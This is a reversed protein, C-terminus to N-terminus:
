NTIRFTQADVNRERTADSEAINGSIVNEGYYNITYDKCQPPPPPWPSRTGRSISPSQAGIWGSDTLQFQARLFNSDTAIELSAVPGSLREFRPIRPSRLLPRASGAGAGFTESKKHTYRSQFVLFAGASEQSLKRAYFNTTKRSGRARNKQKRYWRLFGLEKAKRRRGREKKRPLTKKGGLPTFHTKSVTPLIGREVITRATYILKARKIEANFHQYSQNLNIIHWAIVTGSYNQVTKTKRLFEPHLVAHARTKM